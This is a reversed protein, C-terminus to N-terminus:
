PSLNESSHFTGIGPHLLGEEPELVVIAIVVAFLHDGTPVILVRPEVVEPSEGLAELGDVNRTWGTVGGKVGRVESALASRGTIPPRVLGPAPGVIEVPVQHGSLIQGSPEDIGLSEVAHGILSIGDQRQLTREASGAHVHVLIGLALALVVARLRRIRKLLVRVAIINAIRTVVAGIGIVWVLRVRIPIADTVWAVVTDNTLLITDFIAIWIGVPVPNHICTIVAHMCGIELLPIRVAVAPTVGAVVAEFDLVDVLVVLVTVTHPISAVVAGGHGVLVLYVGITVANTVGAVLINTPNSARLDAIPLVVVAVAFDVVGVTRDIRSAAWATARRTLDARLAVANGIRAQSARGVLV